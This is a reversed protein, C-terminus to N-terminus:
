HIKSPIKTCSKLDQCHPDTWLSECCSLAGFSLKQWMNIKRTWFAKVKQFRFLFLFDNRWGESIQMNYYNFNWVKIKNRKSKLSMWKQFITMEKFQWGNQWLQSSLNMQFYSNWLNKKLNKSQKSGLHNVDNM